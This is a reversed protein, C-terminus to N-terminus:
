RLVAKEWRSISSWFQVTNHVCPNTCCCLSTRQKKSNRRYYNKVNSKSKELAVSSQIAIKIFGDITVAFYHKYSARMIGMKKSTSNPNKEEEAYEDISLKM